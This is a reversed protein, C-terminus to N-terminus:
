AHESTIQVMNKPLYYERLETSRVDAQYDPFGLNPDWPLANGYQKDYSTSMMAQKDATSPLQRALAGETGYKLQEPPSWLRLSRCCDWCALLSRKGMGVIFYKLRLRITACTVGCGGVLWM